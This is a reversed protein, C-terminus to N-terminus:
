IRSALLAYGCLPNPITAYRIKLGSSAIGVPLAFVVVLARDPPFTVLADSTSKCFQEQVADVIQKGFGLVIHMFTFAEM